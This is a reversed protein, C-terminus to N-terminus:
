IFFIDPVNLDCSLSNSAQGVREGQIFEISVIERMHGVESSLQHNRLPHILLLHILPMPVVLVLKTQVLDVFSLGLLDLVLVNFDFTQSFCSFVFYVLVHSLRICFFFASLLRTESHCVM